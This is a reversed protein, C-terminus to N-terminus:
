SKYTFDFMHEPATDYQNLYPSYTRLEIKNQEPMFTYISLYGNGGNIVSQFNEMVQNVPSDGVYDTRVGFGFQEGSVVLVINDHQSILKNWIDEGENGAVGSASCSDVSMSTTRMGKNNLYLHTFLIVKKDTNASIIQDAWYLDDDTPCYALSIAMFDRDKGNSSFFGYMNESGSEPFHGGFWDYKSFREYGFYTNYMTTLRMAPSFTYGSDYDHDGIAVLYPVSGDLVSMSRNAVNWQTASKGSDVLDGVQLVFRINLTDVNEKIWRTQNIFIDPRGRSYEQPDPIVVVTFHSEDVSEMKPSTPKQVEFITINLLSKKYWSPTKYVKRYVADFGMGDNDYFKTMNKMTKPEDM